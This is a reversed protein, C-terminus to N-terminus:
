MLSWERPSGYLGSSFSIGSSNNMRSLISNSYPILVNSNKTRADMLPAAVGWVTRNTVVLDQSDASRSLRIHSTRFSSKITWIQGKSPIVIQRFKGFDIMIGSPLITNTKCCGIPVLLFCSGLAIEYFGPEKCLESWNQELDYLLFYFLIFSATSALAFSPLLAQTGESLSITDYCKYITM